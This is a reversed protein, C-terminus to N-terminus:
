RRNTPTHQSPLYVYHSPFFGKGLAYSHKLLSPALCECSLQSTVKHSGLVGLLLKLATKLEECM